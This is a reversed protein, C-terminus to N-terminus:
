DTRTRVTLVPCAAHRVVNTAVSGLVVRTMGTWGHTGMVILDCRAKRAHEVIVQAPNGSVVELTVRARVAEPLSQLLHDAQERAQRQMFDTFTEGRHPGGDGLAVSLDPRIFDPPSWVHLLTIRAEFAESLVLAHELAKRAGESFDTPCLIRQVRLATSTM